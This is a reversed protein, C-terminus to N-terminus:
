KWHRFNVCNFAVTYLPIKLLVEFEQQSNSCDQVTICFTLLEPKLTEKKKRKWITNTGQRQSTMPLNLSQYSLCTNLTDSLCHGLSSPRLPRGWLEWQTNKFCLGPWHRIELDGVDTHCLSKEGPAVCVASGRVPHLNYLQGCIWWTTNWIQLRPGMLSQSDLFRILGLM